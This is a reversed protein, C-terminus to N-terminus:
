NSLFVRYFANPPLSSLNIIYENGIKTYLSLSIPVWDILDTSFQTEFTVGSNLPGIRLREGANGEVSVRFRVESNSPHLKAIFEFENQNGDGDPDSIVDAIRANYIEDESFYIRLWNLFEASRFELEVWDSESVAQRATIIGTQVITGSLVILISPILKKM